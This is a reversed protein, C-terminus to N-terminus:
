RLPEPKPHMKLRAVRALFVANGVMYRSWLRRPENALRYSWELGVARMWVPSRTFRGGIFDLIAGGNIILVGRDLESRLQQALLEQKPMGMALVVVKAGSQKLADVYAGPSQFGDIQLVVGELRSAAESLYPESTGCLALPMGRCRELIRPILDTGNLNLGPARGFAQCMIRMGSGDRVLLNSAMLADFFQQDRCAMNVAHANVFSVVFPREVSAIQELLRDLEAQDSVLTLRELLRLARLPSEDTSRNTM